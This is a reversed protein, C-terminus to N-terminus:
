SRLSVFSSTTNAWWAMRVVPVLRQELEFGVVAGMAYDFEGDPAEPRRVRAPAGLSERGGM